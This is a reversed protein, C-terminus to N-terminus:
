VSAAPKDVPSLEHTKREPSGFGDLMDQFDDNKGFGLDTDLKPPTTTAM